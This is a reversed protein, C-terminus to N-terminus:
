AQIDYVAPQQAQHPHEGGAYVNLKKLQQRGLKNKPLMGKVAIEIMRTPHKKQMEAATMEKLGGPYRSHRYYMKDSLKNGTLKVKEANIVIVFDGTDVHPTFEPKHKGRLLTAVETALRGLTKGEADVLLWKREVEQAKAMFTTRMKM